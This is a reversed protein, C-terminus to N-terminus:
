GVVSIIRDVLMTSDRGNTLYSLFNKDFRVAAGEPDKEILGLLRVEPLAGLLNLFPVVREPGGDISETSLALADLDATTGWTRSRPYKGKIMFRKSGGHIASPRAQVDAIDTPFHYLLAWQGSFGFLGRNSIFFDAPPLPMDLDSSEMPAVWISGAGAWLRNRHEYGLTADDKFAKRRVAVDEFGAFFEEILPELEPAALANNITDVEPTRELHHNIVNVLSTVTSLSEGLFDKGALNGIFRLDQSPDLASFGTCNAVIENKVREASPSDPTISQSAWWHACEVLAQALGAEDILQVDISDALTAAFHCGVFNGGQVLRQLAELLNKNIEDKTM